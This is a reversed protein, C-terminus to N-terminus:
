DAFFFFFCSVVTIPKKFPHFFIMRLLFDSICNIFLRRIILLNFTYSFNYLITAYTMPKPIYNGIFINARLFPALWIGSNTIKKFNYKLQSFVITDKKLM